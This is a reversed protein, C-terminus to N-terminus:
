KRISAYSVTKVVILFLTVALTIQSVQFAFDKNETEPMTVSLPYICFSYHFFYKKLWVINHSPPGQKERALINTARNRLVRFFSLM